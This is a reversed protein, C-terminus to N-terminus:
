QVTPVLDNRNPSQVEFEVAWTAARGLSGRDDIRMSLLRRGEACDPNASIEIRAIGGESVRPVRPNRPRQFKSFRAQSAPM